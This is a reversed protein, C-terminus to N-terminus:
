VNGMYHPVPVRSLRNAKKRTETEKGTKRKKADEGLGERASRHERGNALCYENLVANGQGAATGGRRSTVDRPFGYKVM